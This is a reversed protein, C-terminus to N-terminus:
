DAIELPDNPNLPYGYAAMVDADVQEYFYELTSGVLIKRWDGTGGKRFTPSHSSWAARSIQYLASEDLPRNVHQAIEALRLRQVSASGGGSDGVLDEYRCCYAGNRPDLWPQFGRLRHVFPLQPLDWRGAPYGSILARIRADRDAYDHRFRKYQPHRHLRSIYEVDSVIIDRPDRVIFISRFDLEELIAFLTPHGWLHSTAYQGPKIRGLLSRVIHWDLEAAEPNTKGYRGASLTNLHVGSTRIEPLLDLISNVLHTGAKPVSNVLVRPELGAPALSAVFRIFAERSSHLM